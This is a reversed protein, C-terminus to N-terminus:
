GTDDGKLLEGYHQLHDRVAAAAADPDRSRLAELIPRHSEAIEHRDLGTRLATIITRLEVRLGLWTELLVSNGGAEVILRHFAVDHELFEELDGARASTALRIALGTLEGCQEPTARRAAFGAAVPEVGSRLETLSRLQNARDGGALRWRIVLPDYLNWEHMPLITVGVRRRTSVLQMSELVRVVERVVTRSVGFREELEEIRLVTGSPREGSAIEPGLTALVQSYL